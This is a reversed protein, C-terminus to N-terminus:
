APREFWILSAQRGCTRERRYSFFLSDNSATCLDLSYINREALGAELLQAKTLAWLDMTKSVPDFWRQFAHGWEAAFNVFEAKAPSLSPGRVALVDGSALGYKRCFRQVGSLPFACRNGRWGVHLAAIYRGSKHTLLLPQCDATKILLACGPRSSALGDGPANNQDADGDWVFHGPVPNPDFIVVDGHIQNLEAVAEIGLIRCLSARNAAVSSAEDGTAFSINGGGYPGDAVGGSRIQFACNVNDVGPFAFPIYSINQSTDSRNL